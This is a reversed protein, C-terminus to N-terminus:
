VTVTLMLWTSTARILQEALHKLLEDGENAEMLGKRGGQDFGVQGATAPLTDHGNPRILRRGALISGRATAKRDAGGRQVIPRDSDNSPRLSSMQLRPM